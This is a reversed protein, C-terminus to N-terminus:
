PAIDLAIVTAYPDVADEPVRISVEGIPDHSLSDIVGCRTSFDLAGDGPILTAATVRKIPVGRATVTDYPKMLLHLYVRDDRRTSPGYFQWPELGASVGIVAERHSRLWTGVEELRREQEPPVAGSGMPSINLLLNGGRGVVECLTHVLHRTSKYRTDGPNYGWSHNMTMCTEWRGPPPQPPVFQEPTTFDGYGPLRDNVLCDPALEAILARLEKAKWDPREWGGDFWLVDVPGYRTLL